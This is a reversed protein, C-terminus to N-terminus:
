RPAWGARLWRTSRAGRWCRLLSRSRSITRAMGTLDATRDRREYLRYLDPLAKPSDVEALIRSDLSEEAGAAGAALVALALPITRAAARLLAMRIM